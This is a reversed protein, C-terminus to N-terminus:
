KGIFPIAFRLHGRISFGFRLPFHSFGRIFGACFVRGWPVFDTKKDRPFDAKRKIKENKHTYGRRKKEQHFADGKGEGKTCVM